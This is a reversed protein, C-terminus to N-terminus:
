QISSFRPSPRVAYTHESPDFRRRHPNLRNAHSCIFEHGHRYYRIVAASEDLAAQIRDQLLLIRIHFHHDDIVSRGVARYVDQLRERVLAANIVVVLVDPERGCLVLGDGQGVAVPNQCQVRVDQQQWFKM